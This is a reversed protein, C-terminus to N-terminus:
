GCVPINYPCLCHLSWGTKGDSKDDDIKKLFKGKLYTVISQCWDHNIYSPNGLNYTEPSFFYFVKQLYVWPKLCVRLINIAFTDSIM